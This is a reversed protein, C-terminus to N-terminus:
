RAGDPTTTAPQSAPACTASAPEVDPAIAPETTSGLLGILGGSSGTLPQLIGGLLAVLASDVGTLTSNATGLLGTVLSSPCSSPGTTPQLSATSSAAGASARASSTTTSQGAVSSTPAVPEPSGVYHAPPSIGVAGAAGGGPTATAPAPSATVPEPAAAVPTRTQGLGSAYGVLIIVAAVLTAAIFQERKVGIPGGAAVTCGM